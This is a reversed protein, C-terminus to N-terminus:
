YDVVRTLCGQVVDVFDVFDVCDVFDVVHCLLCSHGTGLVLDELDIGYQGM